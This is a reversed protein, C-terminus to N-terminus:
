PSSPVTSALGHDRSQMVADFPTVQTCYASPLVASPQLLTLTWSATLAQVTPLFDVDPNQLGQVPPTLTATPSTMLRVQLVTRLNDRTRFRDFLYRAVKPRALLADVFLFIPM